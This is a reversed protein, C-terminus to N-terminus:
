SRVLIKTVKGENNPAPIHRFKLWMIQAHFSLPVIGTHNELQVFDETTTPSIRFWGRVDPGPTHDLTGFIEIIGTYNELYMAITHVPDIHNKIRSAPVAGSYYGMKLAISSIHEQNSLPTFETIEFPPVPVTDIKGVVEIQIVIDNTHDVYFPTGSVEGPINSIFDQEGTIAMEYYGPSVDSLEGELMKFKIIGKEYGAECFKDIVLERNESNVVKARLVFNKIDQPKRDRNFVRFTIENDVGKHIKIIKNNMPSNDTLLCLNNGSDLLLDYVTPYKYLKFIM